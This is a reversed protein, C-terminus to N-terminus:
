PRFRRVCERLRRVDRVGPDCAYRLRNYLAVIERASGVGQSDLLPESRRLFASATEHRARVAGTDAMRECFEDWARVVPDRQRRPYLTILAVGGLAVGLAVAIAAAVDKWNRVELGFRAFLREQRGRDYALLWQNWANSVADLGFRFKALWPMMADSGSLGALRQELRVGREIRDPAVAGTPDVRVWGRGAIWVETWAHADAQRVIWWGDMPNLEGGQYGTVIRAPIGAARMLVAFAGAYHECFGAQEGFLFDDVANRGLPPPSLTYRFPQERFMTLATSVVTEAQAADLPAPRARNMDLGMADTGVGTGSSQGLAEDRWRRALERSRPDFGQPLALWKALSEATENIGIQWSTASEAEFRIRGPVERGAVLQMDPRLQAQLGPPGDIRTAMELAFLWNRGTPEQIVSYKIRTGPDITVTPRPAASGGSTAASRSAARWIAGDFTDFVPGRWYLTAPAPAAEAFKVRFAVEHSEGLEAVAGPEMSDSLGTSARMGDSPMGWLPGGPRPFLVFLIAALPLAQLLTVGVVRARVGLPAEHQRYQMTLMAALLGGLAIMAVAGQAMSQSHLFSALLLFLALYIVVFLDRNARVEMLKLGLFLVLLAVGPARGVLSGYQAWVGATAAIAGLWRVSARPLWRGSFVLGLRWCFLVVFALGIWAPLHILHPLVAVLVPAMMFLTDRRDREWQAGLQGGLARMSWPMRALSM